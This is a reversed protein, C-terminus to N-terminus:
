SEFKNPNRSTHFISLVFVTKLNEDIWYSILYPSNKLPAFRLDNNYKAAFGYPTSSISDLSNSVQKIFRSGLGTQKENYWNYAESLETEAISLLEVKYQSM